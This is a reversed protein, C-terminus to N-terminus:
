PRNLGWDYQYRVNQAREIKIATEPSVHKKLYDRVESSNGGFDDEYWKFMRSLVLSKGRFDISRTHNLFSQRAEDLLLEVNNGTFAVPIINAGGMTAKHIAFHIREDTFIPRLIGHEIEDLSLTQRAINFREKKWVKRSDVTRISNDPKQAIVILVIAANYMNLWYAKQAQKNLQRPDLNQLYFLYARLSL